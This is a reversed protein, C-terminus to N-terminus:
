YNGLNLANSFSDLFIMLMFLIGLSKTVKRPLRMMFTCFKAHSDLVVERLKSMRLFEFIPMHWKGKESIQCFKKLLRSLKKQFINIGIKGSMCSQNPLGCPVIKCM